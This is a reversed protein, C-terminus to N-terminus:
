VLKEKLARRSMPHLKRKEQLYYTIAPNSLELFEALQTQTWQMKELVAIVLEKDTM